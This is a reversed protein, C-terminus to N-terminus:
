SRSLNEWDARSTPDKDWFRDGERVVTIKAVPDDRGAMFVFGNVLGGSGREGRSSGVGHITSPLDFRFRVPDLQFVRCLTEHEFNRVSRWKTDGGFPGDPAGDWRVPVQGVFGSAFRQDSAASISRRFSQLDVAKGM